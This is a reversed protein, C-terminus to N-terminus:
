VSKLLAACKNCFKADPDNKARCNPCYVGADISSNISGRSHCGCKGRLRKFMM